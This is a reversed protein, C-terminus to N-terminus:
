SVIAAAWIKLKHNNLGLHGGTPDVYCFGPNGHEGQHKECPWKTKLQLIISGQLQELETYNDLRPVKFICSM